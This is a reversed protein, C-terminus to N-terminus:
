MQHQNNIWLLYKDSWVMLDLIRSSMKEDRVSFRILLDLLMWFSGFHDWIILLLYMLRRQVVPSDNYLFSRTKLMNWYIEACGEMPSSQFICYVASTTPEVMIKPRLTVAKTSASRWLSSHLWPLISALSEPRRSWSWHWNLGSDSRDSAPTHPTSPAKGVTGANYQINLLTFFDHFHLVHCLPTFHRWIFLRKAFGIASNRMIEEAPGCKTRPGPEPTYTFTLGTTYIIGDNRVKLSATHWVNLLPSWQRKSVLSVPVQTPQRM